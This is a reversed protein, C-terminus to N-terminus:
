DSESLLQIALILTAASLLSHILAGGSQGAIILGLSLVIIAITWYMVSKTAAQNIKEAM